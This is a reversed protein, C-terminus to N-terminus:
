RDVHRSLHQAPIRLSQVPERPRGRRSIVRSFSANVSDGLNTMAAHVTGASSDVKSVTVKARRPPRGISSHRAKAVSAGPQYAHAANVGTMALTAMRAGSTRGTRARLM